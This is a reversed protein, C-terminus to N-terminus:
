PWAAEGAADEAPAVQAQGDTLVTVGTKEIHLIGAKLSLSHEGTEDAYRLPASATEAILPAHGPWIGIGGGDALRAQV